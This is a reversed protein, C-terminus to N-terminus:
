DKKQIFEIRSVHRLNFCKDKTVWLLESNHAICSTIKREVDDRDVILQHTGCGVEKIEMLWKNM